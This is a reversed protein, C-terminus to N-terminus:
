LKLGGHEFVVDGDGPSVKQLLLSIGKDINKSQSHPNVQQKIIKM